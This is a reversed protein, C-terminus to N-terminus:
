LVPIKLQLFLLIATTQLSFFWLFTWVQSVRMFRVRKIHMRLMLGSSALVNILSLVKLGAVSIFPSLVITPILVLVGTIAILTLHRFYDRYDDKKMALFSILGQLVWGSGVILLMQLGSTLASGQFVPAMMWGFAFSMLLSIIVGIGVWRRFYQRVFPPDCDCSFTKNRPFLFYRNYSIAHYFFELFKFVWGGKRIHRLWNIKESFIKLIGELGYSTENTSEDILAMEYKFHEPDVKAFLRDDLQHYNLCKSDPFVGMKVLLRKSNMCLGCNGDYVIWKNALVDM